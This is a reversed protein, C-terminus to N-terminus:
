RRSRPADPSKIAINAQPTVAAHIANARLHNRTGSRSYAPASSPIQVNATKNTSCKDNGAAIAAAICGIARNPSM